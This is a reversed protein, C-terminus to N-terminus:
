LMGLFTLLINLILSITKLGQKNGLDLNLHALCIDVPVTLFEGVDEGERNLLLVTVKLWLLNTFQLHLNAWLFSLLVAVGLVALFLGPLDTVLTLLPGDLWLTDHLLANCNDVIGYLCAM